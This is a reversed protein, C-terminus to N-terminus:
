KPRVVLVPAVGGLMRDTVSGLAARAIGGRGHTTMVVLDVSAAEAYQELAMAPSGVVVEARVGGPATIRKAIGAVYEEAASQLTEILQPTYASEMMLGDGYATINIVRVVHVQSEFATAYRQVTAVAQEALESGDVPLMIHKFPPVVGMELWGETDGARPGVVLTECGAGRILKDAVSGIRWRSIGSRGHTSVILLDTRASRLKELIADAPNGKLVETAVQINHHKHMDGAVEHLYTQLVNGERESAETHSLLHVEEEPNVVSVLTVNLQDLRTLSPVFALSREALRSGDLPIVVNLTL